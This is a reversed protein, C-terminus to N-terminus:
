ALITDTTPRENNPELTETEEQSAGDELGADLKSGSGSESCSDSDSGDKDKRKKKMNVKRRLDPTMGFGIYNPLQEKPKYKRKKKKQLELTKKHEEKEKAKLKEALEFEEVKLIENKVEGMLSDQNLSMQLPPNQKAIRFKNKITAMMIKRREAVLKQEKEVWTEKADGFSNDDL